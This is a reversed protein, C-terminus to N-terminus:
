VNMSYITYSLFTAFASWLLYPILLLGALKSHRMAAIILILTSVAVLACDITASFLDKQTFQFYSFAQNLIYNIILIIWFFKDGRFFSDKNYVIAVSFSILAFLIGWVIGIVGGSPTWSPKDLADYWSQDIPFLFGSLSFLLYTILFVLIATKKMNMKRELTFANLGHLPSSDM